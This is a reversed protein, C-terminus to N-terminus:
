VRSRIFLVYTGETIKQLKGSEIIEELTIKPNSGLDHLLFKILSNAIIEASYFPTTFVSGSSAISKLYSVLNDAGKIDEFTTMLIDNENNESAGIISICTRIATITNKLNYITKEIRGSTSDNTGM